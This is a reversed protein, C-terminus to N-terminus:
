TLNFWLESSVDFDAIHLAALKSNKIKHPIGQNALMIRNSISEAYESFGINLYGHKRRSTFM